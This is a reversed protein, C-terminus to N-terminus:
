QGGRGPLGAGAPIARVVIGRQYGLNGTALALAAGRGASCLLNAAFSMGEFEAVGFRYCGIRPDTLTQMDRKSGNIQDFGVFNVSM